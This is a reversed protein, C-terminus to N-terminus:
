RANASAIAGLALSYLKTEATDARSTLVIPCKAGVILGASKARAFYTLAKGFCNGTEYNPMLLIDANEMGADGFKKHARAESSVALDLGVPGYVRLRLASWDESALASADTTAPIKESVVESGAVCYATIKEYGVGCLFRAANTLIARKKILDPAPNMGGDTNVLLKGYGQPEYFMMHSLLAGTMLPSHVVQRLLDTTNLRGKMLFDAEGRAVADVAAIACSVDSADEPTRIAYDHANEGLAALGARIEDGKGILLARCVGQRRAEVAASLVNEDHAAAIAVTADHGKARTFLEDLSRIM